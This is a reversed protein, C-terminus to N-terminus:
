ATGNVPQYRCILGGTQREGGVSGRRGPPLVPKGCAV